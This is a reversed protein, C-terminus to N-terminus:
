WPTFRLGLLGAIQVGLLTLGALAFPQFFDAPESTAPKLRAPKM